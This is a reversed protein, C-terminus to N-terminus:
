ATMQKTKRLTTGAALVTLLGLGATAPAPLPTPSSSNQMTTTITGQLKNTGVTPSFLVNNVHYLDGNIAISNNPAFDIVIANIASVFSVLGLLSTSTISGNNGGTETVKLTFADLLGMQVTSSSFTDSLTFTGFTVLSSTDSSTLGAFTLSATGTDGATTPAFTLQTGGSALSDAGSFSGTTTYPLSGAKANGFTFLVAAAALALSARSRSAQKLM